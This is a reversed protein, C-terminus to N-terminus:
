WQWRSKGCAPASGTDADAGGGADAAGCLAGSGAPLAAGGAFWKGDDAIGGRKEDSQYM